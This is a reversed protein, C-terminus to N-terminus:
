KFKLGAFIKLTVNGQGLVQLVDGENLAIKYIVEGYKEFITIETEHERDKGKEWESQTYIYVSTWHSGEHTGTVIYDGIPVDKGAIYIGEKLEATKEINRDAIEQQVKKLLVVIEEDSLSKLEISEAFCVVAMSVIVMAIIIVLTLSRKM